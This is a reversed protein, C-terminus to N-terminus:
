QAAAWGPVVGLDVQAQTLLNASDRVAGFGGPAVGIAVQAQTLLDATDGIFPAVGIAVQAQTLPDATDGLFPVVGLAVQARTLRDTNDTFDRAVSTVNAVSAADDDSRQELGQWAGIGVGLAVVAAGAILHKYLSKPRKSQQGVTQSDM